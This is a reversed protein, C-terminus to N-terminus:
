EPWMCVPQKRIIWVMRQATRTRYSWDASGRPFLRREMLMTRLLTRPTM